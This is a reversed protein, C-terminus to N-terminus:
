AAFAAVDSGISLCARSIASTIVCPMMRCNGEENPITLQDRTLRNVPSSGTLRRKPKGRDFKLWYKTELEPSIATM